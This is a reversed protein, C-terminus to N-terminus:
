PAGSQNVIFKKGAVTITGKRSKALTNSGVTYGVEGDGSTSNTSTITIFRASSTARWTCNTGNATVTVSSSGGTSSFTANTEGLSFECAAAAQSVTFIESAIDMTGIRAETNMNADVTYSVGRKGTGTVGNTITIFSDNSVATWDCDSYNPTVKVTSYGGAAKAKAKKPSISYTCGGIAQTVTFSQGAITMTGVLAVTNTNPAVAYHVTGNGTGSSGSTITIFPDDSMASWSCGAGQVKVSVSKSGGKAPLTVSTANLTYTCNEVSAGSQTVTFMQGAITMTGTGGNTSTNAALSYHVTGNGSGSSGSIITIFGDNSMATWGCGDSATVSVSDPGGAADFVANTPSISFGGNVCGNSGIIVFVNFQTGTIPAAAANTWGNPAITTLNTM